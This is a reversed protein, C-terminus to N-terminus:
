VATEGNIATNRLSARHGHANRGQDLSHALAQAKQCSHCRHPPDLPTKLVDRYRFPLASLAQNQTSAAVNQQVPSHTLFAEIAATTMEKPHRKNHFLIYRKIWTVYSEETRISYHKLRIADRVQDLLRKPRHEM